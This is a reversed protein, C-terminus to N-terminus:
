KEFKYYKYEYLVLIFYSYKIIRTYINYIRFTFNIWIKCIQNIKFIYRIIKVNIKLKKWKDFNIKM